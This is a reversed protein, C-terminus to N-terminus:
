GRGKAIEKELDGSDNEEEGSGEEEPLLNWMTHVRSTSFSREWAHAGAQDGAEPAPLEEEPDPSLWVAGHAAFDIQDAMSWAAPVGLADTLERAPGSERGWFADLLDCSIRWVSRCTSRVLAALAVAQVAEYSDTHMPYLGLLLALVFHDAHRTLAHLSAVAAEVAVSRVLLAHLTELTAQLQEALAELELRHPRLVELRRSGRADMASAFASLTNAVHFLGRVLGAAAAPSVRRPRRLVSVEFQMPLMLPALSKLLRTVPRRLEVQAAFVPGLPASGAGPLSRGSEHWAQWLLARLLPPNRCLCLPRPPSPAAIPSKGDETEQDVDSKGRMFLPLELCGRRKQGAAAARYELTDPEPYLASRLVLVAEGGPSPTAPGKPAGTALRPARESPLSGSDLTQTPAPRDSEGDEGKEPQGDVRAEASGEGSGDLLDVLSKRVLGGLAKLALGMRAEFVDRARVPFLASAWFYHVVIGVMSMATRWLPYVWEAQDSAYGSLASACMCVGLMAYVLAHPTRWVAVAGSLTSLLSLLLTMVVCKQPSNDYSLGNALYTTYLTALGLVGGMLSGFLLHLGKQLTRGQTAEAISTSSLMAWTLHHQLGQYVAPWCILGMITLFTMASQLAIRLHFPQVGWVRLLWDQAARAWGLVPRTELVPPPPLVDPRELCTRIEAVQQPSLPLPGAVDELLRGLVEDQASPSGLTDETSGSSRQAAALTLPKPAAQTSAM